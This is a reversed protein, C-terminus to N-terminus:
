FILLHLLFCPTLEFTSLCIFLFCVLLTKNIKHNSMRFAHKMNLYPMEHKLISDKEEKERKEEDLAIAVGELELTSLDSM